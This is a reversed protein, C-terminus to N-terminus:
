TLSICLQVRLARTPSNASSVSTRKQEQFFMVIQQRQHCKPLISRLLEMKQSIQQKLEAVKSGDDKYSTTFQRTKENVQILRKLQLDSESRVRNYILFM